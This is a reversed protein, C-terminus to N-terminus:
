PVAVAPVAGVLTLQKAITKNTITLDVKYLRVETTQPPFHLRSPNMKLLFHLTGEGALLEADAKVRRKGKRPKERLRRVHSTYIKKLRPTKLGVTPMSPLPNDNQDALFVYWAGKSFSSYMPFDSIPYFEGVLSMTISLFLFLKWPVLRLWELLKRSLM